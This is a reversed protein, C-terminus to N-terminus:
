KKTKGFNTAEEIVKRIESGKTFALESSTKIEDLTFYSPLGKQGACVNGESDTVLTLRANVLAEEDFAADLIISNGIKSFTVSVPLTSVDLPLDNGTLEVVGDNIQLEPITSSALASIAAYSTADFLNGADNLVAVDVFVSHVKQGSIICLKELDLMKSERVGRDVVRALEVTSEDPPGPEYYPSSVPTVEANVIIVGQDPTDPFPTGMSIKVGALVETDGITVKASGNAKEIVGTTITLDRYALLDRNDSRTGKSLGDIIKASKLSDLVVSKRM